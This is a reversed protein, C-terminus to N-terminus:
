FFQLREWYSTDVDANYADEMSKYLNYNQGSYDQDRQPMLIDLQHDLEKGRKDLDDGWQLCKSKLADTQAFVYNNYNGILPLL